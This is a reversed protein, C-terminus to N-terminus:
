PAGHLALCRRMAAEIRGPEFNRWRAAVHQDPRILYCTDPQGDYRETLVGQTDVIDTGVRLVKAVCRAPRWRSPGRWTASACCSLAM